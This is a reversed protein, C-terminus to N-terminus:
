AALGSMSSVYIFDANISLMAMTKTALEIGAQAL